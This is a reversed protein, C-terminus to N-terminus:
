YDFLNNKSSFFYFNYKVIKKAEEDKIFIINKPNEELNILNEISRQFFICAYYIM